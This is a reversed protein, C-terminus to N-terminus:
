ERPIRVYQLYATSNWRGLTKIVSDEVGKAAVTTAAGIWFSHGCYKSQDVGASELAKRVATVFVQQTLFTGERSIILPGPVTGRIVLYNLLAVVPCIDTDTRGVFLDVGKRFPDTKSQKISIQLVNPHDSNDVAIDSFCLHVGLDFSKVESAVMEGIRLFGFFALCCAVWLMPIDPTAQDAEWV